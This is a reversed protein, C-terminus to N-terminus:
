QGTMFQRRKSEMEEFKKKQEPTFDASIEPNISDFIEQMRQTMQKQTDVLEKSARRLIPEIRIVQEPTLGLDRKFHGTIEHAMEAPEPPSFLRKRAIGMAVFGGVAAGLLFVLAFSLVLKWTKM